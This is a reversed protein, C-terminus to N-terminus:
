SCINIFRFHKFTFRILTASIQIYETIFSCIRLFSYNYVDVFGFVYVCVCMCVCVKVDLLYTYNSNLSCSINYAITM